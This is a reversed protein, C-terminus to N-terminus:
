AFKFFYSTHKLPMFPLKVRPDSTQKGTKNVVIEFRESLNQSSSALMVLGKFTGHMGLAMASHRINSRALGIVKVYGTTYCHAPRSCGRASPSGHVLPAHAVIKCENLLCFIFSDAVFM